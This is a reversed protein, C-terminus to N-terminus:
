KTLSKWADEMFSKIDVIGRIHSEGFLGKITKSSSHRSIVDLLRDHHHAGCDGDVYRYGWIHTVNMPYCELETYGVGVSEAKLRAEPDTLTQKNFEMNWTSSDNGFGHDIAGSGRWLSFMMTSLYYCFWENEHVKSLAIFSQARQYNRAAWLAIMMIDAPCDVPDFMISNNDWDEITSKFAQKFPSRNILYDYYGRNQPYFIGHNGSYFDPKIEIGVITKEGQNGWSICISKTSGAHSGYGKSNIDLVLQRYKDKCRYASSKGMFGYCGGDFARVEGDSRHFHLVPM